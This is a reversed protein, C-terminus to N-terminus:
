GAPGAARTGTVVTAYREECSDVRAVLGGDALVRAAREAQRESTEVLLSGGPALWRPAEAAVRRLVDLGDGGGDLAVLPEHVRAEAPLLAVDESPVYPVNALLVDVRGRLAGPLPAFLDGEYVHGREGINRRACRVAAPEVDAAHLEVRDLAAALAAGLAGSGCCLDVVVAPDPALAVARDILFETRRRPVFVGPDVAIRLGNFEAWGLVHELPHGAARREAMVAVDAPRGATAAILAAEDEAFVCGAARLTTVLSSLDSPSLPVPM